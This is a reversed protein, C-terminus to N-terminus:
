CYYLCVKQLRHQQQLSTYLAMRNPPLAPASSNQNMLEKQSPNRCSNHYHVHQNGEKREPFRDTDSSETEAHQQQPQSSKSKTAADVTKRTLVAKMRRRYEQSNGSPEIVDASFRVKKAVPREKEGAGPSYKTFRSNTVLSPCCAVPRSVFQPLTPASFDSTVPCCNRELDGAGAGRGGHWERSQWNQDEATIYYTDCCDVDDSSERESSSASRNGPLSTLVRISSSLGKATDQNEDDTWEFAYNKLPFLKHKGLALLAVSGSIALVTFIGVAQSSLMTYISQHFCTKWADGM